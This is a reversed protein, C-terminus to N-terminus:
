VNSIRRIKNLKTDYYHNKWKIRVFTGYLNSFIRIFDVETNAPINPYKLAIQTMFDEDYIECLTIYKNEM